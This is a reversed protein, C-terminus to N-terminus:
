TGTQSALDRVVKELHHNTGVFRWTTLRNRREAYPSRWRRFSFEVMVKPLEFLAELQSPQIAHAPPPARPACGRLPGLRARYGTSNSSPVGAARSGGSPPCQLLPWSPVGARPRPVGLPKCKWWGCRRDRWRRISGLRWQPKERTTELLAGPSPTITTAAEPICKTGRGCSVSRAAQGAQGTALM